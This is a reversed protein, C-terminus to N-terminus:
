VEKKTLEHWWADKTEEVNEEIKKCADRFEDLPMQVFLANEKDNLTVQVGDKDGAWFRTFAVTVGKFKNEYVTDAM